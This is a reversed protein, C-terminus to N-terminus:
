VHQIVLALLSSGLEVSSVLPVLAVGGERMIRDLKALKAPLQAAWRIDAKHATTM